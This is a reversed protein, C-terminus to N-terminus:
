LIGLTSFVKYGYGTTINCVESIGQGITRCYFSILFEFNTADQVYQRQHRSRPGTMFMTPQSGPQSAWSAIYTLISSRSFWVRDLPMDGGGDIISTGGGGEGPVMRIAGKVYMGTISVPKKKTGNWQILCFIYVLSVSWHSHEYPSSDRESLRKPDRDLVHNPDHNWSCTCTHANVHM